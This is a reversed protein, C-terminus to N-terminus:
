MPIDFEILYKYLVERRVSNYAKKYDTFLQHVAEHTEMKSDYLALIGFDLKNVEGTTTSYSFCWNITERNSNWQIHNPDYM